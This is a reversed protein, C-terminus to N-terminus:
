RVKTSIFQGDEEDPAGSIGLTENAAEAEYVIDGADISTKVSQSAAVPGGGGM